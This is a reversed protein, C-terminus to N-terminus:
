LLSFRDESRFTLTLAFHATFERANLADKWRLRRRIM